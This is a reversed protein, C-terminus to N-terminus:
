TFYKKYLSDNYQKDLLETNHICLDPDSNMCSCNTLPKKNNTTQSFKHPTPPRNLYCTEKRLIKKNNSNYRKYLTRMFPYNLVLVSIPVLIYILQTM